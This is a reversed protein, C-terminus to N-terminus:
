SELLGVLRVILYGVGIAAVAIPIFQLDFFGLDPMHPSLWPRAVREVVAMILGAGIWRLPPEFAARLDATQEKDLASKRGDQASEPRVIPIGEPRSRTRRPLPNAAAGDVGDLKMAFSGTVARKVDPDSSIPPEQVALATEKESRAARELMPSADVSTPAFDPAPAEQGRAAALLTPANPNAISVPPDGSKRLPPIRFTGSGRRRGDTVTVLTGAAEGLDDWFQGVDNYRGRPDVALARTFVAEVADPVKLGESRPTPRQREDMITGMMALQDGQIVPRGILLELFTLALGWVDTWPGTAGFRKPIWQEPAGYCPTFAASIGEASRTSQGVAVSAADRARAIGFDLIKVVTSGHMEALFINAPKVDRHVICVAGEPGPFHHAADLARAVPTFLQFADKFGLPSMGAAAREDIYAALTQGELWELAIFPVFAGSATSLVDHHLPRVIEPIAASLRYLLEAEERFRELFDARQGETLAGPIKLCKLAVPARFAVHNARYVVAFGGEAVFREVVFPGQTTGVIGFDAEPM